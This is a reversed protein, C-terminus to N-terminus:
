AGSFLPPARGHDHHGHPACAPLPPPPARLPSPRPPLPAPTHHGGHPAPHDSHQEHRSVTRLASVATDGVDDALPEAGQAQGAVAPAVPVGGASDPPLGALALAALLALIAATLRASLRSM